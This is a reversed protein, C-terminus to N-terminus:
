DSKSRNMRVAPIGAYVEGAAIDKLVVAGAGIVADDGIKLNPLINAGAGILVRTGVMVAGALTANPAIHSFAGVRCDHDVVAGHNVIVSEGIEAGPAIIAGAAVFSGAGIIAFRSVLAGPHVVTLPRNAAAVLQGHWKQRIAANGIALHFSGGAMDQRIAPIAIPCGLIQKESLAADDDSVHLTAREVANQLLADLVVKGHGGAGILFISDTRM